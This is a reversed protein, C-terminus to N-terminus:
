IIIYKEDIMGGNNIIWSMKETSLNFAKSMQKITKYYRRYGDKHEVTFRYKKINKDKSLFKKIHRLRSEIISISTNHRRAIETNKYGDMKDKIIEMDINYTLDGDKFLDFVYEIVNDYDMQTTMVGPCPLEKIDLHYRYKNQAELLRLASNRCTMFIYSKCEEFNTSLRDEKWKSWISITANNISSEKDENNILRWYFPIKELLFTVYDYLPQITGDWRNSFEQEEKTM